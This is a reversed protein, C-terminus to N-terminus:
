VKSKVVTRLKIIWSILMSTNSWVRILREQVLEKLITHSLGVKGTFNECALSRNSWRKMCRWKCRDFHEMYTWTYTSCRYTTGLSNKESFKWLCSSAEVCDCWFVLVECIHEGVVFVWSNSVCPSRCRLAHINCEDGWGNQESLSLHILVM